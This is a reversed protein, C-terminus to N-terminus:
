VAELGPGIYDVAPRAFRQRAAQRTIGLVGGIWTWSHGRDHLGQAADTIAQDVVSRLRVLEELAEPDGEAARRALSRSVRCAM